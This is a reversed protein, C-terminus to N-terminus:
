LLGGAQLEAAYTQIVADAWTAIEDHLQRLLDCDIGLAELGLRLNGTSGESGGIAKVIEATPRQKKDLSSWPVTWEDHHKFFNAMEDIVQIRSFPPTGIMASAHCMMGRKTGDTSTLVRGDKEARAILRKISSVVGSIQAQAAVFAAGVLSEVVDSEDDVVIDVYEESGSAKARDIIRGCETVADGLSELVRELPVSRVHMRAFEIHLEYFQIPMATERRHAFRPFVIIAAIMGIELRWDEIRAFSFQRKLAGKV